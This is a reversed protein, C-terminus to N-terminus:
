KKIIKTQYDTTGNTIRVIYVGSTLSEISFTNYHTMNLIQNQVIRGNVDYVSIQCEGIAEKAVIQLEGNTPNPYMFFNESNFGTTSLACEEPIDFAEVQDFRNTSLGQSASVGLGRRAFARWILCKNEFNNALLDAELIANRGDVFGPNCPQLKLGDVVLQLAKNNGGNGTYLNSDFGYVDILDWTMDWIMSAWVFGIGHPQSINANNTSGFTFNNVSFSRSYPAPRIGNGTIPQNRLYTGVGRIQNPTDNQKMTLMLAFYDSWGEGMQEANNLCGSNNAGGTLRISIGHGYEHTIVGSDLSSSFVPSNSLSLTGSISTNNQLASIIANGQAQNIMVSPITVNAGDNGPGMAIPATNVNNVIIVAIAGANEAALVKAGFQCNGRTIVVIKGALDATNTINDCGDHPDTTGGSNDDIILALQGTVPTSLNAGFTSPVIPYTGSLAGSPITLVAASNGTTWNYMQMRPRNGDPPTAFNANNTGSGDQDDANVSDSGLGLNTYNREQFNGSAEDFGYHYFADHIVNNWYFLNTTTAEVYNNPHTNFDFPFNFNLSAGGQAETGTNNGALDARARVNNGRTTTFEPGVVGNTDHWGFPSAMPDAPQALLAINGHNPSENPIPLVNYQSGDSPSFANVSAKNLIINKGFTKGTNQYHNEAHYHDFKCQSVWDLISLMDGTVADIRMSYWHSSDLLYISLDWVLRLQTKDENPQFMLKVPINEQSINASNFLFQQANVSEILLLDHRNDINLYDAAKNIAQQPNLVATTTNIKQSANSVFDVKAVRVNQSEDVAFVSVAHFIEIGNVRQTTYLNHTKTSRAYHKNHIVFDSVDTTSIGFKDKNLTLYNEILNEFNQANFFLPLILLFVSFHKM